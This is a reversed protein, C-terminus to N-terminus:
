IVFFFNSFPDSRIWIVEDSLTLRWFNKFCEPKKASRQVIFLFLIFLIFHCKEYKKEREEGIFLEVSIICRNRNQRYAISNNEMSACFSFVRITNKEIIWVYDRFCGFAGWWNYEFINFNVLSFLNSRESSTMVVPPVFKRRM